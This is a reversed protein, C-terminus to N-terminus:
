KVDATLMTGSNYRAPIPDPVKGPTVLGPMGSKADEPSVTAGGAGSNISVAYKGPVPGQDRPVSFRGTKVMGGSQTGQGVALTFTIYRDALPKGDLTVNGSIAERPLGDDTGRCGAWVILVALSLRSCWSQM